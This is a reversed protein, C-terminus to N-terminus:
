TTARAVIVAQATRTTTPTSCARRRALWRRRAAHVAQHDVARAIVLKRLRKHVEAPVPPQLSALKADVDYHSLDGGVKSYVRDTPFAKWQSIASRGAMLGDRFGDLTDGLATNVSMGTVVVRKSM